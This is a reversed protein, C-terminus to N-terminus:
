GALGAVSALREALDVLADVSPAPDLGGLFASVRTAGAARRRELAAGAREEDGDFLLVLDVGLEIEGRGARRAEERALELAGPIAETPLRPNVLWGRGWRGLRTMARRLAGGEGGGIWVLERAPRAPRPELSVEPVAFHEGGFAVRPDDLARVLVELAEDMRSGRTAPDWGLAAMEAELWGPGVGLLLRGGSLRDITAAQKAVVLPHRQPLVVLSTELGLTTTASSAAALFTLAELVEQGPHHSVRGGASYTYANEDWPYAVHDQVQIGAYGLDELARAFARLGGADMLAPQYNAYGVSLPLSRM